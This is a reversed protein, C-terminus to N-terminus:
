PLRRAMVAPPLSPNKAAAEVVEPKPDDLLGAVVAAPLAPHAAARVRSRGGGAVCPLLAEATANPHSAIERLARRASPEHRALEALLDGPADPNAAVRALVQRGHRAVMARLREPSLGPHPAVAKAVSADPDAALRDRLEPPLDHRHAM